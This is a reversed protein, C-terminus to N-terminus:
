QFSCCNCCLHKASKRRVLENRESLLQSCKDSAQTLESMLREVDALRSSSEAQLHASQEAARRTFELSQLERAACASMDSQLESNEAELEANRSTLTSVKEKESFLVFLRYKCCM